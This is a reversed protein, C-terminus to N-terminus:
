EAAAVGRLADLAAGVEDPAGVSLATAGGDIKKMLGALVRGPGLEVTTWVGRALLARVSQEWLVPADVQAALAGRAEAGTRVLSASVNAVVPFELDRFSAAELLPRLREAAPRMLSSHFPASVELPVVRKIGLSRALERAREVAAASGAIVIQGPSNFNAPECVLGGDGEVAAACLREVTERDAGLVAAMAGEGVPVAEQMFRGRERVIRVAEGLALAGAAVLASYEGLSHGAAYDPAPAGAARFARYAAVSVTLIAPQTNATLRLAEDPGEFCLQALDEGLAANAEEFTARADASGDYLARGMGVAQSGQGPFLYAIQKM